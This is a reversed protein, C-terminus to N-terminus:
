GELSQLYKKRAYKSMGAIKKREAEAALAAVFEPRGDVIEDGYACIDSLAEVLTDYEKEEDHTGGLADEITARFPPVGKRRNEAEFMLVEYRDEGELKRLLFLHMTWVDAQSFVAEAVGQGDQALQLLDPREYVVMFENRTRLGEAM